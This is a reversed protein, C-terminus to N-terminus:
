LSSCAPIMAIGTTSSRLASTPTTCRCSRSRALTTQHAANSRPCQEDDDDREGGAAVGLLWRDDASRAHRVAGILDQEANLVDQRRAANLAAIELGVRRVHEVILVSEVKAFGVHHEGGFQARRLSGHVAITADVIERVCIRSPHPSTTTFSTSPRVSLDGCTVYLWIVWM